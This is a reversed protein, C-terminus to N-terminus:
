PRRRNARVVQVAHRTLRRFPRVRGLDVVEHIYSVHHCICIHSGLDGDVTRLTMIGEPRRRHVLHPACEVQCLIVPLNRFPSWLKMQRIKMLVAVM